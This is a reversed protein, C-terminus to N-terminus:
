FVATHDVKWQGDQNVFVAEAVYDGPAATYRQRWIVAVSEPRRFLALLDRDAFHGRDAQYRECVYKLYEPTVIDRMRPTFDRIHAAHDIRTSADMLNDMIPTLQALLEEDTVHDFQHM